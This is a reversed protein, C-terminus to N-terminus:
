DLSFSFDNRGAPQIEASLGSTAPSFYREPILPKATSPNAGLPFAGFEDPPVAVVGPDAATTKEVTVFFAGAVGGDGPKLTTLVFRGSTDTFGSAARRSESVGERPHFVVTAGVLPRGKYTVSGSAAYTPPMMRRWKDSVRGSCGAATVAVATLLTAVLVGTRRASTNMM